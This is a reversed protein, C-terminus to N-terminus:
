MRVSHWGFELFSEEMRSFGQRRKETLMKRYEMIEPDMMSVVSVNSIKEKRQPANWQM